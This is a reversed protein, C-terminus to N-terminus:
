KDRGEKVDIIGKKQLWLVVAIIALAILVTQWLKMM